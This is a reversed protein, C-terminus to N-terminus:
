AGVPDVSTVPNGSASTITATFLTTSDDVDYVTLTSGSIVWKNRMMALAERVKRSSAGAGDLGRNLLADAVSNREGSTLTMADGTAAPSAPLLDTKAKIAAVETDVYATLTALNAATALGSQIETVADAALESAGIADAAISSATIGGAAVSGVSGTVNGGVNGTVSGVAGTVSGVSGSLNGTINGVIDMTQNPLNINTLGAGAAGIEATDVLIDALVKGAQGTTYSGPVPTAWPDGGAGAAALQEATSGSTGSHDAIAEEWVQDAVATAIAATTPSASGAYVLYVSTNDPQVEWDNDCTAVKSTNNYANVTNGQGAGTGSLIFVFAGRIRDDGSSYGARLTITNTGGGQATGSDVAQFAQGFSGDTVHGSRAEDWVGDAIEAIADAALESAGIADAAISSATIGGAAIATVSSVTPITNGTGAYGTGDFFAEANDAATADSSIAGVNCDMRGGVLAAPIRVDLTTGTDVLIAATDSKVAAVDASVSAGAPAGVRAYTDGTQPYSTYVQVTVPVAGTGTFTFAVLDYNTEGQAPAYTHYGNGEHTCAGSGVSGTAQTGADGTVSVTVSGTFASGDSASVMQAGIVQSAVNKRM